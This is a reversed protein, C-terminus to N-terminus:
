RAPVEVAESIDDTGVISDGGKVQKLALKTLAVFPTKQPAAKKVFFKM